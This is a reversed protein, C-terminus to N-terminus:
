SIYIYVMCQFKGCDMALFFFFSFVFTIEGNKRFQKVKGHMVNTATQILNSAVLLHHKLLFEVDCKSM